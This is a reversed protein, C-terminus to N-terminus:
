PAYADGWLFLAPRGTTSVALDVVVGAEEDTWVTAQGPALDIGHNPDAPADDAVPTITVRYRMTLGEM